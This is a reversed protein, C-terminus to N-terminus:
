RDVRAAEGNVIARAALVEVDFGPMRLDALVGSDTKRATGSWESGRANM